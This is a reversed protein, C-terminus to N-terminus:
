FGTTTRTSAAPACPVGIETWDVLDPKLTPALQSALSCLVNPDSPARITREATKMSWRGRLTVHESDGHSFVWLIHPWRDAFIELLREYGKANVPHFDREARFTGDEDPSM